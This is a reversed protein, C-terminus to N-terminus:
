GSANSIREVVSVIFDIRASAPDVTSLVCVVVYLEEHSGPIVFEIGRPVHGCLSIVFVLALNRANEPRNCRLSVRVARKARCSLVAAKGPLPGHDIIQLFLERHM